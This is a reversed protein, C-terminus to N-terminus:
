GRSPPAAASHRSYRSFCCRSIAVQKNKYKFVDYLSQAIDDKKGEKSWESVISDLPLLANMQAFQIPSTASTTAVDPAQNSTVATLFTQYNDSGFAISRYTVTVNPYKKEFGAIIKQAVNTYSDATGWNMDWFNLEVKEKTGSSTSGSSSCGVAAFATLASLALCVAKKAFSNM